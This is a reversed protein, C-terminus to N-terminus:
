LTPWIIAYPNPQETVDRLAQRYAQYRAKVDNSLPVDPLQSFDSNALLENRKRRVESWQRELLIADKNAIWQPENNVIVVLENASVVADITTIETHGPALERDPKGGGSRLVFFTDIDTYVKTFTFPIM